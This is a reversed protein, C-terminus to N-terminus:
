VTDNNYSLVSFTFSTHSENNAYMYICMYIPNSFSTMSSLCRYLLYLFPPAMIFLQMDVCLYWSVGM